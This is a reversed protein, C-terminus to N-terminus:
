IVDGLRAKLPRADDISLIKVNATNIAIGVRSGRQREINTKMTSSPSLRVLQAFFNGMGFVSCVCCLIAGSENAYIKQTKTKIKSFDYLKHRLPKTNFKVMTRGPMHIMVCVGAM